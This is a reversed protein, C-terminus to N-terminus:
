AAEERERRLEARLPMWCMIGAALTAGLALWPSTIPTYIVCAFPGLADFFARLNLSSADSYPILPRGWDAAMGPASQAIPAIQTAIQDLATTDFM